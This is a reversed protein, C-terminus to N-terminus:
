KLGGIGIGIGFFFGMRASRGGNAFGLTIGTGSRGSWMLGISSAPARDFSFRTADEGVLNFGRGLPVQVGAFAGVDTAGGGEGGREGWKPGASLTLLPRRNHVFRHSAIGAVSEQLWDNGVYAASVALAPSRPTDPTFQYKVFAGEHFHRPHDFGEHYILLGSLQLQRTPVYTLSVPFYENQRDQVEYQDFGAAYLRLRKVQPVFATPHVFLGGPAYATQAGAPGISGALIATVLRAAHLRKGLVTERRVSVGRIREIEIGGMGSVPDCAM